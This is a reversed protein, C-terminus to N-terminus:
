HRDQKPEGGYSAWEFREIRKETHVSSAAFLFGHEMYKVGRQQHYSPAEWSIADPSSLCDINLRSSIIRRTIRPAIRNVKAQNVGAVPNAHLPM